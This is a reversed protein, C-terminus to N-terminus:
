PLRSTCCHHDVQEHMIQRVAGMLYTRKGSCDKLDGTSPDLQFPSGGGWLMYMEPYWVCGDLDFVVLKPLAGFGGGAAAM